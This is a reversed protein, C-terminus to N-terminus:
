SVSIQRGRSRTAHELRRISLSLGVTALFGGPCHFSFQGCKDHPLWGTLTVALGAGSRGGRRCPLRHRRYGGSARGGHGASGWPSCQEFVQTEPVGSSPQSGGAMASPALPLGPVLSTSLVPSGGDRRSLRPLPPRPRRPAPVSGLWGASVRRKRNQSM